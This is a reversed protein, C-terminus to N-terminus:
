SYGTAAATERLKKQDLDYFMLLFVGIVFVSAPMVAVAVYLAHIASASQQKLHGQLSATYGALTLVWGLTGASIAFGSKEIIAYFSSFLGERRKGTRLRDYEMADTLMSASMLLSGGSGFGLIFARISVAYMPPNPGVLFWSLCTLMMMSVGCMYAYKKGIRRSIAPWFAQSIFMAGNQFVALNIQGSYGLKLVNLMFLLNAPGMIGFALYQTLKASMLFVLPRNSVVSRVDAWRPPTKPPAEVVRAAATGYFSLLMTLLGFAAMSWGMLHFGAAGGGGIKILWATLALAILQGIGAFGTRYAILRVREDYGNTMEAPMAFYPVNFLSYGTSYVILAFGMYLMLDLGQLTPAQFILLLSATSTLAGAFLYPRRRGWRSQTRDSVRGILLDAFIDYIKSLMVLSGAIAPSQGLVTTMLAPFYVSVANSMISVGITGVGFGLCLSRSLPQAMADGSLPASHEAPNVDVAVTM